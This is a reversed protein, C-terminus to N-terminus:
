TGHVAAMNPGYITVQYRDNVFTGGGYGLM